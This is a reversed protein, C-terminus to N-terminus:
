PLLDNLKINTRTIFLELEQENFDAKMRINSPPKSQKSSIGLPYEIAGMTKYADILKDKDTNVNGSLSPQKFRTLAKVAVHALLASGLGKNQIRPLISLNFVFMTNTYQIYTIMGIPQQEHFLLSWFCLCPEHFGLVHDLLNSEHILEDTPSDSFIEQFIGLLKIRLQADRQLIKTEYDVLEFGEPFEIEQM